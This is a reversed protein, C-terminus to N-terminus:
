CYLSLKHADTAPLVSEATRYYTFARFFADSATAEHGEVHAGEAVARASTPPWRWCNTSTPAGM